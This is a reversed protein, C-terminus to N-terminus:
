HGYLAELMGYDVTMYGNREGVAEPYVARVDQALVGRTPMDEAGVTKAIDNWSWRYAPLGFM